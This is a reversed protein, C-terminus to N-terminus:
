VLNSSKNIIQSTQFRVRNGTVSFDETLLRKIALSYIEHEVELVTEAIEEPSFCTEVDIAKQMVIPGADYETNVLHITVGSVKAGSEFVARHVHMGYMGKGGFSPLLAPHINVIRNPYEEVVKDPIKKLFGALVIWDAAYDELISLLSAAYQQPSDFKNPSIVEAQISNESAFQIAGAKENDAILCCVTAPIDGALINKYIYRFNSGRGSAFVAIKKM